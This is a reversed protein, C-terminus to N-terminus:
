ISFALPVVTNGVFFVGIPTDSTSISPENILLEFTEDILEVPTEKFLENKDLKDLPSWL